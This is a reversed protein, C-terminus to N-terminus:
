CLTPLVIRMFGMPIFDEEGEGFVRCLTRCVETAKTNLHAVKITEKFFIKVASLTKIEDFENKEGRMVKTDQDCGMFVDSIVLKGRDFNWISAYSIFLKRKASWREFLFLSTWSFSVGPIWNSQDLLGEVIWLRLNLANKPAIEIVGRM